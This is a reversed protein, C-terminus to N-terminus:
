YSDEMRYGTHVNSPGFAEYIKLRHDDTVAPKERFGSKSKATLGTWGSIGIDDCVERLEADLNEYKLIRDVLPAGTASAWGWTSVPFKGREVYEEWSLDIVVGGHHPSNKYMSWYSICKEVPEREVCFKFLGDFKRKGLIRRVSRASMHPTFDWQRLGFKQRQFNRPRHLDEEPFVSTVIADADILRSLEVEISTGATKPTKIFLFSYQFSLLM